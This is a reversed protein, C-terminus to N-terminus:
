EKPTLQVSNLGKIDMIDNDDLDIIVEKVGNDGLIENVKTSGDSGHVMFNGSGKSISAQYRGKTIDTGVIWYGSYINTNQYPILSSKIPTFNASMGKLEIKSGEPLIAKYKKIEYGGIENVLVSGDSGYVILNGSGNFTVNYSGKAIHKGVIHSGASLKKSNEKVFQDWKKNEEIKETEARKKDELEWEKVQIDREKCLREFDSKISQKDSGGINKYKDEIESFKTRQNVDFDKYHKKLLERDEMTLTNKNEKKSETTITNDQNPTSSGTPLAISIIALIISGILMKKNKSNNDKKIIGKIIQFLSFLFM